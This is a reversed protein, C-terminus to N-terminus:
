VYAEILRPGRQGMASAFAAEFEAVNTARTAEVGM